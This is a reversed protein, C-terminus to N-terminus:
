QEGGNENLAEPRLLRLASLLANPALQGLGCISSDRLVVALESLIADAETPTAQAVGTATGDTPATQAGIAAGNTTGTAGLTEGLKRQVRVWEWQRRTGIRCPVCQGCSEDMFFRAIREVADWLNATEDYVVFAGSGVTGGIARLTEFALPTDLEEPTLFSGAAGGCLVAQVARGNPIGGALDDIITRIPVGFPVEYVGPRSVHGSISVLKTGASGETGIGSYWDGGYMLIPPVSALTEVNNIVTPRGFLGAQTPFPPRARPEGRYGELSNFLATEEGCVYAGAGLRVEVDFSFDTGLINDGLYGAERAQKLAHELVVQAESYEGRLYLYGRAAGTVWAAITMGELVAFPDQELLIRDKFTGPESEDANCVVYCPGEERSVAEWKTATPFAAGGRGVLRSRKVEDLAGDPGIEIARQLGTYGDRGLYTLLDKAMGDECRRFLLPTSEGLSGIHTPRTGATSERQSGAAIPHIETGVTTDTCQPAAAELEARVREGLAEPTMHGVNERGLLVAPARDCQGLCPSITWGLPAQSDRGSIGADTEGLPANRDVSRAQQEPGLLEELQRALADAGQLRCAIDDCVYLTKRPGPETSLLGYFSAVGYADALPVTLELCVAALAPYSIWGRTEQLAILAPLLLDRRNRREAAPVDNWVRALAEAEKPEPAPAKELSATEMGRGPMPALPLEKM